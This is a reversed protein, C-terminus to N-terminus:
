KEQLKEQLAAERQLARGLEGALLNERQEVIALTAEIQAVQQQLEAILTDREQVNRLAELRGNLEAQVAELQALVAAQAM